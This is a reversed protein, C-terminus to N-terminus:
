AQLYPTYRHQVARLALLLKLVRRLIGSMDKAGGAEEAGEGEVGAAAAMASSSEAGGGTSTLVIKM